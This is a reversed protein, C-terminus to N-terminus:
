QVSGVVVVFDATSEIGAPITTQVQTGYLTALKEATATKESNIQYIAITGYSGEPANSIENVTLGEGSLRDAEAQAAGEVGSGNLVDVTASETAAPNNTIFSKIYAHIGSFDYVGLIPQVISQGALEGTTVQPDEEDDIRVSTVRNDDGAIEQGINMLTRVERTNFNTRVNNGMSDILGSVAAPNALTGASSAKNLLAMIIKQQYQERAFNGDALGYGMGTSDRARALLLAEKGDLQVVGNPHKVYNCEYNCEWDFNPDYIGRPDDSEILVDVGGVANVSEEVVSNNVHVYYHMDLGYVDKMTDMLMRAGAEENEGDESGCQYVANIKGEFGSLCAQDYEVWLDRPVSTLMAINKEQDVSALMISDTLNPGADEHAGSDESTGFIVINSRGYEDMQLPQGSGFLDFLNGDFIKSSALWARVGLYGAIAVIIILLIIFFWKVQRKTPMWKKRKPKESEKDIADLSAELESSFSATDDAKHSTNHASQRAKRGTVPAPPTKPARMTDMGVRQASDTSRRPIVFGDTSIPKKKM